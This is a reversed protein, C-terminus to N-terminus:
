SPVAGALKEIGYGAKAIACADYIDQAEGDELNTTLIILRRVEVKNARGNGLALSKWTPVSIKKVIIGSAELREVWRGIEQSLRITTRMSKGVVHPVEEIYAIPAKVLKADAREKMAFWDVAMQGDWLVCHAAKTSIDLGAVIM